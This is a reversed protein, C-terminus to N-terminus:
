KKLAAIENVQGDTEANVHNWLDVREKELDVGTTGLPIARKEIFDIKYYVDKGNITVPITIGSEASIEITQAKVAYDIKQIKEM